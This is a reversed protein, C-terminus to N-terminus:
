YGFKMTGGTTGTTDLASGGKGTGFEFTINNIWEAGEYVLKISREKDHLPEEETQSLVNVNCDFEKYLLGSTTERWKVVTSNNYGMLAVIKAVDAESTIIEILIKILEVNPMNFQNRSDDITELSLTRTKVGLQSFIETSGSKLSLAGPASRLAFDRGGLDTIGTFAIAAATDAADKLTQSYEYDFARNLTPTLRQKDRSSEYKFMLGLRDEGGYKFVDESDTNVTQKATVVQTDCNFNLYGIMCKIMKMTAQESEGTIIHEEMNRGKKQPFLDTPKYPKFDVAKEGGLGFMEVNAPTTALSGLDCLAIQQIGARSM